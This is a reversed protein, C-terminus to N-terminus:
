RAALSRSISARSCRTSGSASASARARPGDPSDTMMPARQGNVPARDARQGPPSLPDRAVAPWSAIRQSRRVASVAASLSARPLVSRRDAGVDDGPVLLEGHPAAPDDRVHPQHHEADATLLEAVAITSVLSTTKLMSITENGTPPIIVRMAQPLVIRRMVLGRGMGLAAAAESQGDDVSLIGARVIEAM